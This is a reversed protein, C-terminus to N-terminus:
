EIKASSHVLNLRGAQRTASALMTGTLQAIVIIMVIIMATDHWERSAVTKVLVRTASGLGETTRHLVTIGELEHLERPFKSLTCLKPHKVGKDNKFKALNFNYIPVQDFLWFM